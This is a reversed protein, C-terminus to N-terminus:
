SSNGGQRDFRSRILRWFGWFWIPSLLVGLQQLAEVVGAAGKAPYTEALHTAILGREGPGLPTDNLYQMRWVVLEWGVRNHGQKVYNDAVHCRTCRQQTLRVPYPLADWAAKEAALKQAAEAEEQQLLDAERKRDSEFDAKLRKREQESRVSSPLQYEAPDIDAMAPKTSLWIGIYLCAFFLSAQM